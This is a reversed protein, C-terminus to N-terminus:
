LINVVRESCRKSCLNSLASWLNVASAIFSPNISTYSIYIKWSFDPSISYLKSFSYLTLIDISFHDLSNGDLILSTFGIDLDAPSSIAYCWSM